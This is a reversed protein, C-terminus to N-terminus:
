RRIAELLPTKAARSAPWLAAFVGVFGSAIFLGGVLSYPISISELGEGSLVKLFAWGLSVGVAIGLVAGFLAIQVSEITILWRVQRRQMGVARLM